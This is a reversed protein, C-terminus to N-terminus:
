SLESIELFLRLIIKCFAYYVATRYYQRVTIFKVFFNSGKQTAGNYAIHSVAFYLFCVKTDSSFWEYKM